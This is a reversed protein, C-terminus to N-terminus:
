FPRTISGTVTSQTPDGGQSRMCGQFIWSVNRSGEMVSSWDPENGTKWVVNLSNAEAFLELFDKTYGPSIVLEVFADAGNRSPFARGEVEHKVSDISLTLFVPIDRRNFDWQRKFFQLLLRNGEREYKVHIEGNANEGWVATSMGCVGQDAHMYSTWVGSTILNGQAQAAGATLGLAVAAIMFCKM